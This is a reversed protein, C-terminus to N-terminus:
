EGSTPEAAGRSRESRGGVWFPSTWAMGGDLQRVRVYYYDGAGDRGGNAADEPALDAFELERDLAADDDVIQLAIRDVHEGVPPMPHELRGDELRDLGLEVTAAPIDHLPRLTSAAGAERTAELEIRVKTQPGAGELDLLISDRRGRTLIAFEVTQPASADWELRDRLPNDLGTRRAGVVRAGEVVLKGRWPRIGRPNDIAPGLVESSSEFAVELASKSELPAVLYSRSHIVEGNRVVDIRDIPATGAVSFRIERRDAAPQRTGMAHGNLTADLLIRQGSTAYSRLTRLADFIADTTAEPAFVAALGGPQAVSSIPAPALGPKAMHDDSAAVFGLEFGNRLYM